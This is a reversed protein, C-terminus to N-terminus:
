DNKAQKLRKNRIGAKIRESMQRKYEEKVLQSLKSQFTKPKKDSSM